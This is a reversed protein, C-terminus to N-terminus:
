LINQRTGAPWLHWSCFEDISHIKWIVHTIKESPCEACTWNSKVLSNLKSCTFYSHVERLKGGVFLCVHQYTLDLSQSFVSSAQPQPHIQLSPIVTLIPTLSPTISGLRSYYFFPQSVSRFLLDNVKGQTMMLWHGKQPLCTCHMNHIHTVSVSLLWHILEMLVVSEANGYLSHCWHTSM